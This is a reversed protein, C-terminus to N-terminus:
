TLKNLTYYRSIKCKSTQYFMLINQKYFLHEVPHFNIVM